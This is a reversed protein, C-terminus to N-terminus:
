LLRIGSFENGRFLIEPSVGISRVVGAVKSTLSKYVYRRPLVIGASDPWQGEAIGFLCKGSVIIDAGM